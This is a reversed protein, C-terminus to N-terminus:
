KGQLTVKAEGTAIRVTPVYMDSAVAPLARFTGATEPRVYYELVHTGKEVTRMFFSVRDDRVDQHAWWNDWPGVEVDGRDQVEWGTPRFDELMMFELPRDTKLTLRVLVRDGVQFRDAPRAAPLVQPRGHADARTELRFYERTLSVGPLTSEAQFGVAPVQQTVQVTYYVTGKGTKKLELRSGGRLGKLEVVPLRVVTEDRLADEPTADEAHLKKGNLYVDLHYDPRLEGTQKLYDTLAFLIWATDRTSVWRNGQRQLMLWQVVGPIRRDAPDVAVAAKLAVATTEVRQPTGYRHEGSTGDSWFALGGSRTSAEWLYEMAAKAREREGLEHWGLVRYGLSRLLLRERRDGQEVRQLLTRAEKKKGAQALVYAMFMQDDPSVKPNEVEQALANLGNEYIADNLELGARRAQTMGFLVYATMWPDLADHDFWGWGGAPQQFGYLKLLGSRAMEPVRLELEPRRLNLEKLAQLLVVDPLFGSMTQETCGYPYTALYELSGLLAGALTPSLRVEVEGGVAGPEVEFQEVVSEGTLAGTRHDVSERAFPQVPATIEVGDSFGGGSVTATVKATGGTGAVADWSLPVAEGPKLRLQRRSDGNVAVGEARLDATANLERDSYNHAVATLTFRDGETLVRPLQVRLTLEKMVRINHRAEGVETKATHGVVSARWSTLSDPLRIEVTARGGADTRLLPLWEATDPFEKRVQVDADKSADGLYVDPYSFQTEVENRRRPYFAEWLRDEPEARIAYVSEDVLGFSVEAPVPRGSADRTTVTFRATDRPHYVERDSEVAVQLRHSSADINLRASSQALEGRRVFCASVYVNPEYGERIPFRVVTSKRELKVTRYELVDEAEIAVLATSGPRDTNLLVQATQGARYQKRDPLVALTPYTRQLDGGEETSVWLDATTEVRNGRSDAGRFRVMVLGPEPLRVSLRAMGDAGTRLEQTLLERETSKAGDWQELVASATIPLNAVPRDEMDLVRVQVPVQEGPQGFSREARADLRVAGPSVRVSGNGDAYRNSADSVGVEVNYQYEASADQDAPLTTDFEFRATGDADTRLTGETVLDGYTDAYGDEEEAGAEEGDWWSWRRARYVSYNVEAYGVPAGYYYSAKVSVPVRDGRIYHDRPFTVDVQWEPKRYSAVAFGDSYVEEGLSVNLTYWGGAAAAPLQFAGAFSGSEGLPVDGEWISTGQWDTVGVGVTQSSPLAYTSGSPRRVIGKFQVRHGPRYVPRDTYTLVRHTLTEQGGTWSQTFALSDGRRAVVDVRGNANIPFDALGRADTQRGGLRASEGILSVEAGPVPSGTRLDVAYTLVRGPRSKTVLALDTVMMWGLAAQREGEAEVLYIGPSLRELREDEYFVGEADRQRVAHVWERVRRVHPGKLIPFSRPQATAAVPSLLARLDSGHERVLLATDVAYLRMPIRDGQRFGHLSVKLREEPLCARQHINLNLFPAAPKLKLEAQAVKGEAVSVKLPVNEHVQAHTEIEYDGTPIRALEFTGDSKTDLYRSDAGDKPTKPRVVLGLGGLPQGTDTTIRGRLAGVPQEESFAYAYLGVASLLTLVVVLSSRSFM